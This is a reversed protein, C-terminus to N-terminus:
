RMEPREGERYQVNEKGSYYIFISPSPAYASIHDSGLNSQEANKLLPM